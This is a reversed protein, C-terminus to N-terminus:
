IKMELVNYEWANLQIGELKEFINNKFTIMQYLLTFM